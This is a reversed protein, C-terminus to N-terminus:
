LPKLSEKDNIINQLKKLLVKFGQMNKVTHYEEKALERKIYDKLDKSYLNFVGNAENIKNQAIKKKLNTSFYDEILFDIYNHRATKPLMLYVINNYLYTNMNQRGQEFKGEPLCKKMGKQGEEDRDFIAIIKKEQPSINRIENIYDCANQAGGFPLFDFSTLTNFETKFLKIANKVYKIDGIGEFLVLPNNSSLFINQKTDSWIGGTLKKIKDVKENDIISSAGNNNELMIIHKDDTCHALTPSHTTVIIQRNYENSYQEFLSCIDSKGFEHIHADPEDFLLITREDSLIEVATYILIYKKEGESLLKLTLGDNFIIEIKKFAKKIRPMSGYMLIEFIKQLSYKQIYTGKEVKFKPFLKDKLTSLKITINKRKRPNIDAVFGKLENGKSNKIFDMNFDINIKVTKPDIKLKNKIFNKSDKANSLLLTLLSINWYAKNIYFMKNGFTEFTESTLDYLYKFYFTEYYEEWLRTEEGSYLAIIKSPLLNDQIIRQRPTNDGNIIFYPNKTERKITIIKSDISYSLEYEFHPIRKRTYVETFIASIAELINSKGCANNGILLLLNDLNSCDIKINKLNKFNHLYINLLKFSKNQSLNFNNLNQLIKNQMEISKELALNNQQIKENNQEIKEWFENYKQAKKLALNESKLLRELTNNTKLIDNENQEINNSINKEEPFLNLIETIGKTTLKLKDKHQTITSFHEDEFVEIGEILGENILEKLVEKELDNDGAAMNELTDFDIGDKKAYQSAFYGLYSYRLTQKDM